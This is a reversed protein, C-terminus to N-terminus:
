RPPLLPAVRRAFAAVAADAPHAAAGEGALAARVVRELMEAQPALPGLFLVQEGRLLMLTPFTEVDLEGLLEAEDEIDIWRAALDPWENGLRKVVADFLPAYASCLHCWAACLCLLHPAPEHRTIM